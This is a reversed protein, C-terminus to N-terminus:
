VDLTVWRRNLDFSRPRTIDETGAPPMWLLWVLGGAHKGRPRVQIPVVTSSPDGELVFGVSRRVRRLCFVEDAPEPWGQEHM